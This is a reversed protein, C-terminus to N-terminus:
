RKLRVTWVNAKLDFGISQIDLPKDDLSFKITTKERDEPPIMVRGFYALFRNLIM